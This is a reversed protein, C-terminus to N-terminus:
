IGELIRVSLQPDPDKGAPIHAFVYMVIGLLAVKNAGDRSPYLDGSLLPALGTFDGYLVGLWDEEPMVVDAHRYPDVGPNLTAGASGVRLVYSRTTGSVRCNFVKDSIYQGFRTLRIIPGAVAWRATFLSLGGEVSRTAPPIPIPDGYAERVLSTIAWLTALGGSAAAGRRLLDRRRM